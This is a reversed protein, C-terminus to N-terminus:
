EEEEPEIEPEEEDEIAPETIEPETVPVAPEENVADTENGTDEVFVKNFAELCVDGEAPIGSESGYFKGAKEYILKYEGVAFRDLEEAGTFSGTESAYFVHECNAAKDYIVKYGNKLEM